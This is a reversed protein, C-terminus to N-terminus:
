SLVPDPGPLSATVLDAPVDRTKEIPDPRMSAAHGSRVYRRALRPSLGCLLEYPSSGALEAVRNLARPSDTDNSILEVQRGLAGEGARTDTLDIVIQDMSVKGLVPAENVVVQSNDLLGVSGRNSLALPYGDAYGVPVVGLLSERKLTCSAEYGVTAGAPYRRVHIIRGLWRMVPKPGSLRNTQRGPEKLCDESGGLEVGAPLYGYMGLGIRAMDRHLRRDRVAGATNALHVKVGASMLGKGAELARDLREAQERDADREVRGSRSYVLHSYVGALHVFSYGQLGALVGAFESDSLGTRSM